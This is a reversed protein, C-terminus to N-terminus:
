PSPETTRASRIAAAGDIWAVRAEGSVWQGITREFYDHGMKDLVKAAEELADNRATALEARLEAVQAALPRFEQGLAGAATAAFIMAASLLDIM